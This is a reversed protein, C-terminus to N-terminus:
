DDLKLQLATLKIEHEEGEKTKALLNRQAEDLETKTKALQESLKNLETNLIDNKHGM